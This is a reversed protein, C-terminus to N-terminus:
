IIKKLKFFYIFKYYTKFEYGNELRVVTLCMVVSGALESRSNQIRQGATWLTVIYNDTAMGNHLKIKEWCFQNKNSSFLTAYRFRRHFIYITVRHITPRLLRRVCVM